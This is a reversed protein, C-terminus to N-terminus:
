GKALIFLFARWAYIFLLITPDLLREAIPVLSSIVEAEEEEEGPPENVELPELALNQTVAGGVAITVTVAAPYYEPYPPLAALAYGGAPLSMSYIGGADTLATFTYHYTPWFAAVTTDSIPQDTARDYVVGSLRGVDDSPLVQALHAMTAISARTLDACYDLDLISLTDSIQHYHPNFEGGSFNESVLIAPYGRDLFSWQDSGGVLPYFDIAMSRPVLDLDYLATVDSFLEALHRSEPAGPDDGSLAYVDYVPRGINYGIMDLNIAGRIREGRAACDAAYADSGLLGYEEGTFLVFRVTYAFSHTALLRAAMMVAVSGSANDDAGPALPGEPMDDLHATILYIEGADVLGRKEAVVNRWRYDGWEYEHYTVDLGTESFQEYVYRTAMLLSETELLNRTTITYATGAVTVPREGTLGALEYALTPTTVQAIIDAVIPNYVVTEPLSAPAAAATTFSFILLALGALLVPLIARLPRSLLRRDPMTNVSRIWEPLAGSDPQLGEGAEIVRLRHEGVAVFRVRAESQLFARWDRDGRM